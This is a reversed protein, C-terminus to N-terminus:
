HQQVLRLKDPEPRKEEPPVGALDDHLSLVTDVGSIELMRRVHPSVVVHLERGRIRAHRYAELVANVGAAACFTTASMDLVLTALDGRLLEVLHERISDRNNIDIARPLVVHVRAGTHSVRLNLTM